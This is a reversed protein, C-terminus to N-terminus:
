GSIPTLRETISHTSYSGYATEPSESNDIFAHKDVSLGYFCDSIYHVCHSPLKVHFMEAAVKVDFVEGGTLLGGVLRGGSTIVAQFKTSIGARRWETGSV